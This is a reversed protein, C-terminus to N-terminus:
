GIYVEPPCVELNREVRVTEKPEDSVNISWAYMLRDAPGTRRLNRTEQRDTQESARRADIFSESVRAMAVEQLDMSKYSELMLM